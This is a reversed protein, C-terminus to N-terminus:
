RYEMRKEELARSYLQETQAVMRDQAFMAEVRRRGAQGMAQALPPNQFLKLIATALAAPDRPPVLLGTEGEVVAEPVGDVRTAVIPRGAAMAELISLPLGEFESSLVFIDFVSLLRPVDRCYGTFLVEENLGLQQARRELEQRLEGDGVIIFKIRECSKKVLAAAELFIHHAKQPTLRGVTGIITPAPPLRLEQLIVKRDFQRDFRTVDIGHFVTVTKAPDLKYNSLAAQRNIQSEVITLDVCPQTIRLVLKGKWTYSDPSMTPLHNTTVIRPVGALRAALIAFRCAYPDPLNFHLIDIPHHRFFRWLSFLQRSDVGLVKVSVNLSRLRHILPALAQDDTCVFRIDYKKRDLGEILLYLYEEAGGLAPADTFYTLRIRQGM